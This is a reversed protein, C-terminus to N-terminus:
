RADFAAAVDVALGDLLPSTATDGRSHVGHEAYAGAALTLVTITDHRPDAIWYEPIGAEAYDARKDVLDREPRDPSVIEAVLDAGLWFREQYRPDARDRLVLVDPERFKGERIRLRLASFMVAGGRPALHAYLARYLFALIAQHTSTPMPLEEIRGDTFEILRRARDSLWLYEEDSWRGQRPLTDSLIADLAEQSTTATVPPAM